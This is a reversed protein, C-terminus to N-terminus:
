ACARGIGDHPTQRDMQGDTVNTYKRDFRTIMDEVNKEGDVMEEKFIV